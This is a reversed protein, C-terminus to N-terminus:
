AQTALQEQAGREGGGRHVYQGDPQLDWATHDDLYLALLRDLEARHSVDRVPVLLEVRRRLNRPRLDSSGILYEPEGANAFRYIRSHELFRGVVSVVRIGPSLAPVGPRLTCIGRVVLAVDVGALAARYLAHVVDPDSLGNVKITIAASRGQQAHRAEREILALIAPLLQHPAVLAGRSLGQPARSSGTLENFLDAVDATLADCGSFLSLDTYQRGSRASYNGTGVHVYRRLRGGERRVVLAAKAHVKLGVLGYIVHGGAHELARAWGVNHEEDFRAKLEVIAVVRKGAHAAALLADVVPSPQGVRYLTIKITTVDPDAAADRLFRVVTADFAEFPHHVLVEGERVVDLMPREALRDRERLPPYELAADNPLPLDMLCRLDLLRDAVQVHDVPDATGLALAERRLNELVLASVFEPMSREVEVRVAPNLPRRGAASAVADLLDAAEEDLGLDGGRTVRFLHASEVVTNPHLVGVNAKLVEELAIVAGPRGTVPLLRPADPPLEIEALHPAGSESRRFVVALSLGLHPLHPLPHGPSLTMALPTLGPNIEDSCRASMMDREADSLDTWRLLQVGHREAARLCDNACRSQAALIEEVEREVRALLAGATLGDDAPEAAGEGEDLAAHRLEPMRVMYLEDLNSTVISLFRLRERLPTRDDEALALVRRQFALLSLEPSFTGASHGAAQVVARLAQDSGAMRTRRAELQMWRVLFEAHERPDDSALRLDHDSELARALRELERRQGRQLHGCLQHFTHVAGGRRLTVQDYHLALRPRRLLDPHATRTLRDIELDLRTELLAPDVLARLRRSAENDEQLAAGVEASHVTADVRVPPVGNGRIRLSLRHEDLGCLRLRCVVGRRRLSEDGTDLYLDRHMSRRPASASIGLPLPAAALDRRQEASRLEYRFIAHSDADTHM